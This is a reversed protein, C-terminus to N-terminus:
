ENNERQYITKHCFHCNLDYDGYGREKGDWYWAGDLSPHLVLLDSDKKCKLCVGVVYQNIEDVTPDIWWFCSEKM